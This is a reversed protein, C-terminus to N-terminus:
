QCRRQLTKELPVKGSTLRGRAGAGQGQAADAQRGAVPSQRRGRALNVAPACASVGRGCLDVDGSDELVVDGIDLDIALVDLEGEPIGGALLIVVTEAREGVGVGVNDQDAKGDVRGIREVVYLLLHTEWLAARHAAAALLAGLPDGLDQVEALAQGDDQNAALLIQAEVLLGDLLQVLSGLLRYGGLLDTLYGGASV